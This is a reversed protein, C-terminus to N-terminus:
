YTKVGNSEIQRAASLIQKAAWFSNLESKRVTDSKLKCDQVGPVCNVILSSEFHVRECVSTPM